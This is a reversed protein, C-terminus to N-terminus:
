STSSDVSINVYKIVTFYCDRQSNLYENEFYQQYEGSIINEWWWKNDLYWQITQEIGTDFTYNTGLRISRIKNARIARTVYKGSM